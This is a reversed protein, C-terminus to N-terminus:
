NISRNSTERQQRYHKKKEIWKMLKIKKFTGGCECNSLTPDLVRKNCKNCLFIHDLRKQEYKNSYNILLFACVTLLLSTILIKPLLNAVEQWTYPGTLEGMTFRHNEGFIKIGFLEVSFFLIFFAIYKWYNEKQNLDNNIESNTKEIWM